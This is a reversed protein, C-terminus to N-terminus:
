WGDSVYDNDNLIAFDIVYTSICLPWLNNVVIWVQLFWLM